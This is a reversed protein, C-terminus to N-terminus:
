NEPSSLLILGEPVDLNRYIRELAIEIGLASLPVTERRWHFAAFEWRTQDLRLYHHVLVRDQAVLLYHQLSAIQRYADLKSERDNRQTSPSLVEMILLPTTITHPLAPYFETDDCVLVVDPYFNDGTAEVHVRVDSTVAECEGDGLINNIATAVRNAIKAHPISAGVMAVIQGGILEWRTESQEDLRAYSEQANTWNRQAQAM